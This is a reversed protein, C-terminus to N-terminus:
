EKFVEKTYWYFNLDNNDVNKYEDLIGYYKSLTTKYVFHIKHYTKKDFEFYNELLSIFKFVEQSLDM